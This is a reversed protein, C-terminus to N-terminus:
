TGRLMDDIGRMPGRVQAWAASPQTTGHQVFSSIQGPTVPARRGLLASLGVLLLRMPLYPLPVVPAHSKGMAVRTRRLLDTMTLTEPGGAEIVEGNFIDRDALALLARALDDVHVPQVKASGGGIALIVPGGALSRLRALIPAGPGLVVAPRVILHPVGGIAVAKEAARKAAAYPYHRDPKFRAAISSVFILGRAGRERAARVLAETGEVNVIRNAEASAAGTAAALHLVITDASLYRSWSDSERLGGRVWTVTSSDAHPARSLAIVRQYHGPPVAALVRRGIFGSAGTV